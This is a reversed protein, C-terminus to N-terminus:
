NYISCIMTRGLGRWFVHGYHRLTKQCSQLVLSSAPGAEVIACSKLHTFDFPSQKSLLFELTENQLFALGVHDLQIPPLKEEHDSEGAPQALSTDLTMSNLRLYRLGRNLSHFESVPFIGIGSLDLHTLTPQSLLASISEQLEPQMWKWGSFSYHQFARWRLKKIAKFEKLLAPLGSESYLDDHGGTVHLERVLTPIEPNQQILQPLTKFTDADIVIKCFIIRRCSAAFASCVLSSTKLTTFDNRLQGLISDIIEQPVIPSASSDKLSTTKTM